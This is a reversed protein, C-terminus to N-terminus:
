GDGLAKPYVKNRASLGCFSTSPIAQAKSIPNNSGNTQQEMAWENQM